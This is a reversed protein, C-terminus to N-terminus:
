LIKAVNSNTRAYGEYDDAIETPMQKAIRTYGSNCICAYSAFCPDVTEINECSFKKRLRLGYDLEYHIDCYITEGCNDSISPIEPNTTYEM